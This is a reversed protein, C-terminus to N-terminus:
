RIFQRAFNVANQIDQGNINSVFRQAESSLAEPSPNSFNPLSSNEPLRFGPAPAAPAAPQGPTSAPPPAVVRGGAQWQGWDATYVNNVDCLVGDITVQWGAKQHINARSHLKGGSGWDHQWYYSGIGDQVCWQIVNWNGYVGTRLGAASLREHFARLYPRIQNEYQARTPNDDIAVYIPKGNPGGAARHLNIAQPAHVAAGAAGALWDATEARGFQYVSATFLGSGAFDQTEKLAVPKGLMWAAGPRRQSVYRVAGMHGAAKVARASPVGASYDLVTGIPRGQAIANPLHSVGVLGAAGLATALTANGLFSRRSLPASGKSIPSKNVVTVIAGNVENAALAVTCTIFVNKM